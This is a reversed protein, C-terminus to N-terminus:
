AVRPVRDNHDLVIGINHSRRVPDDVESGAPSFRSAFQERRPRRLNDCFTRNRKRPTVEM